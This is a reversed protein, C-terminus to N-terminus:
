MAKLKKLSVLQHLYDHMDFYGIMAEFCMRWLLEMFLFILVVSVIAIHKDQRKLFNYLFTVKNIFSNRYLFLILPFGVAGLYYFIVLIKQTIFTNFTLFDYM